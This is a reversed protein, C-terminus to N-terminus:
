CEHTDQSFCLYHFVSTIISFSLVLHNLYSRSSKHTFLDCNTGTMNSGGQLKAVNKSLFENVGNQSIFKEQSLLSYLSRLPIAHNSAATHCTVPTLRFVSLPLHIKHKPSSSASSM